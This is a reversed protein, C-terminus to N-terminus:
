IKQIGKNGKSPVFVSSMHKKTETQRRKKPDHPMFLPIHYVKGVSLKMAENALLLLLYKQGRRHCQAIFYSNAKQIFTPHLVLIFPWQYKTFWTGTSTVNSCSAVTNAM